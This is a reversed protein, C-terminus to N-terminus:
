VLYTCHALNNCRNSSVGIWNIYRNTHWFDYRGVKIQDKTPKMPECKEIKGGKALFKKMAEDLKRQLEEPSPKLYDKKRESM